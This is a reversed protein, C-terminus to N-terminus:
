PTQCTDGGHLGESALTIEARVKALLKRHALEGTFGEPGVPNLATLKVKAPSMWWRGPPLLKGSGTICLPVVQVNAALALRFGGSYFRGLRGDRSRHGEPFFLVHGKGDLVKRALPLTEDFSNSEVDLYGALRMAPNFWFMKFPWARVAFTVDFCHFPLGGMFFTDFFSLHNIVLVSPKSLIERDFGCREFSVFPSLIILWVRGYFWVWFRTSKGLTWGTVLATVPMLPSCVLLATITWLVILPYTVLNMAVVSVLRAPTM